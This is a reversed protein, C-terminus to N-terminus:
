ACGARNAGSCWYFRDGTRYLYNHLYRLQNGLGPAVISTLQSLHIMMCYSKLSMGWYEEQQDLM